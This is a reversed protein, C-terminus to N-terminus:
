PVPVEVSRGSAASAYVARVTAVVARAHERSVPFPTGASILATFALMQARFAAPVDQPSPDHVQRVDDGVRVSTGARPDAVVTGREGVVTVEDVPRPPTSTITVSADVGNAMTVLASADTEVGVGFRSRTTATVRAPLSGSLWSSRDICHGGINMVAGGGAIVPDFFWAPRTGPRYDTSRHDHLMLVEGLEGSAVVARAAATAPLFHQVHGVALAVGADDCARAMADCGALTTAMPKEVLVPLGAAAADLVMPAHSSHPTSVVVADLGPHELLARHDTFIVAGHPGAVERAEASSLACVAAVEVGDLVAAADAHLRGVAGAGVLGLRM